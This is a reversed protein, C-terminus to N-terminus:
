NRDNEAASKSRIREEAKVVQFLVWLVSLYVEFECYIHACCPFFVVLIVQKKWDLSATFVSLSATQVVSGAVIGIWLGKGELHALFGLVCGMPLGVLYFSGLNVYAGVKQWGCGRAVGSLVGQLCDTLISLCLFPIITAVYHLVHLDKTYAYGVFNRCLFLIATMISAETFALSLAVVVAMRASQPRSGGLENSVRTSAAAGFGYPVTFHLTSISLCISLVSTELKPNSMFGSLLIVLEMSWWKLCIMVASSLGLWFFHGVGVFAGRTLRGRTSACIPSVVVYCTLLVVNISTSLSLAMAAGVYGIKLRYVLTWCAIVHFCIVFLSCLLMPLIVSQTQLFRTLPKLIASAFLGPILWMSFNRAQHSISPDQGISILLKDIFFWLLTIPLCLILLTIIASYTYTALKKYQKAGYAQGCLTELGGAMGSQGFFLLSFGTVNTLSIAIAVSSLPLTGLHGVMVMSVVQLLYQLLAVAVM